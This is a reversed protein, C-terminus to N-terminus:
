GIQYWRQSCRSSGRSSSSMDERETESSSKRRSSRTSTYARQQGRSSTNDRNHQQKIHQGNRLQGAAVVHGDYEGSSALPPKGSGAVGPGRQHPLQQRYTVQPKSSSTIPVQLIHPSSTCAKKSSITTHYNNQFNPSPTCRQQHPMTQVPPIDKQSRLQRAAAAEQLQVKLQQIQLQQHEHQQEQLGLQRAMDSVASEATAVMDQLQQVEQEHCHQQHSLM